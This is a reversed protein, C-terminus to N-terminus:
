LGRSMGGDVLLNVGTIYSAQESCLFTVINAFETSRGFRGLPIKSLAEEYETQSFYRENQPSEVLGPSICNVLINDAALERSLTKSFSVMGAKAVNSALLTETPEKASLAAINIIRGWQQQQMYPVVKTSINAASYVNIDFSKQWQEHTLALLKGRTAQGVNNVLVHVTGFMAVVQTIFSAVDSEITMDGCFSLVPQNSIGELEAATQELPERRRGSIAISAGEQALSLAIAKGLGASAGTVIATKNNLQFDM